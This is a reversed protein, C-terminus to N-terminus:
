EEQDEKPPKIFREGDIKGVNQHTFKHKRVSCTYDTWNHFIVRHCMVISRCEPCYMMVDDVMLPNDAM